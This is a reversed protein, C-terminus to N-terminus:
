QALSCLQRLRTIETHLEEFRKNAADLKRILGEQSLSLEDVRHELDIIREKKCKENSEM